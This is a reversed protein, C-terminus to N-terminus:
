HIESAGCNSCCSCALPACSSRWGSGFGFLQTLLATGIAVAPPLELVVMFLPSFLIAGGIGCSMALTAILAAGPFLLWQDVVLSVM